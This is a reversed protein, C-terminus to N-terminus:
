TRLLRLSQASHKTGQIGSGHSHDLGAPDFVAFASPSAASSNQRANLKRVRLASIPKQGISVWCSIARNNQGVVLQRGGMCRRSPRAPPPRRPEITGKINVSISRPSLIVHDERLGGKSAPFIPSRSPIRKEIHDTRWRFDFAGCPALVGCSASACRSRLRRLCRCCATQAAGDSQVACSSAPVGNITQSRFTRARTSENLSKRASGEYLDHHACAPDAKTSGCAVRANPPLPNPRHGRGRANPDRRSVSIKLRAAYMMILGARVRVV